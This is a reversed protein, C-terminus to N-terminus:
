RRKGARAPAATRAAEKAIADLGAFVYRMLDDALGDADKLAPLVKSALDKPAVTMVICPLVAFLLARQVSPHDDPLGMIGGILGRILRAKPLVAQRILAPLAPSPSLAERLVVRFGWPARPQSGLEILHMLFARLKQRPDTPESALSALEDMSVLQRHAEILVAEYLGDRSGFHYNVAAMNTGARTCIEKSTSEAFGREAFLQGATELIHLRTTSGDTRQTRAATKRPAAPSRTSSSRTAM